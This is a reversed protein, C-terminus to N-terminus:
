CNPHREVSLPLAMTTGFTQNDAERNEDIRCNTTKTVKSPRSPSKRTATSTCTYYSAALVNESITGKELRVSVGVLVKWADNAFYLDRVEM